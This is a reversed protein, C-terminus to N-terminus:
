NAVSELWREAEIAAMCGTGAATVAQRFVHDQCDGCVFVGPVNTATSHYKTILYGNEDMDLTGKFVDTNPIHGIALFVGALPIHTKEGNTINKVLIGNVKEKGQIEEIEVNLVMQILPNEMCRKTMIKSARFTDRRHVLYVKKCLRALYSAEEMASDGGGIVCVEQGKFFHGDCTACSTVGKSWFATESPIGLKKPRAGTAVIVSRALIVGEKTVLRFPSQSVDVKSVQGFKFEAGFKKAQAEMDTVLQNGDVGTAFGPYNEVDTTTTLQGGPTEGYLVVPKLNARATYLAATLGAPGSGLIAVEYVHESAM